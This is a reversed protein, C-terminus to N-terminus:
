EHVFVKTLVIGLLTITLGIILSYPYFSLVELSHNSQRLTMMTTPIISFGATNIVVLIIISRRHHKSKNLAQIAKLGSLTALTGLGLLNALLNSALYDYVEKEQNKGYIWYLVPQFLFSLRSIIGSAQIINFLGNWLCASLILTKVLDFVQFPTNLLATMMADERNMLVGVILFVILGDHFLRSM